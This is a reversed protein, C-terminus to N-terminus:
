SRARALIEELTVKTIELATVETEAEVSANRRAGTMLSMEGVIDGSGLEAIERDSGRETTVHVDVRGEIIVYMAVGFDGSNMLTSGAPFVVHRAKAALVALLEADLAGAFLPITSLEALRLDEDM